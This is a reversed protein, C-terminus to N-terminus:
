LKIPAEVGMVGLGRCNGRGEKKRTQSAGSQPCVREQM